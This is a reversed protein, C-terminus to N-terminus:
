GILTPSLFTDIEKLLKGDEVQRKVRPTFGSIDDLGSLHAMQKGPWFNSSSM